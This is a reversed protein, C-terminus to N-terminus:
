RYEVRVSGASSTARITRESRPDTRVDVSVSGASSDADVRYSVGAVDPITVRVSGASSQANIQRPDADGSWTLSVSGASSDAVVIDSTVDVASVSGASSHLTLDSSLREAAVSGASSRAEVAGDPPVEVVLSATTGFNFVSFPACDVRVEVVGGELRSTVEPETRSYRLSAGTSVEGPPGQRLEIPGCQNDVRVAAAPTQTVLERNASQRTVAGIVAVAIASMGLLVVVVLVAILWRGGSRRRPQAGAPASETPPAAEEV